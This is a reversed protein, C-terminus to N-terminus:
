TAAWAGLALLRRRSDQPQRAAVLWSRAGIVRSGHRLWLTAPADRGGADRRSLLAARWEPMGAACRQAAAGRAAPWPIAYRGIVYIINCLSLACALGPITVKWVTM